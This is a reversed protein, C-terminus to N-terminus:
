YRATHIKLICFLTETAYLLPRMYRGKINTYKSLSKIDFMILYPIKKWEYKHTNPSPITRRYSKRLVVNKAINHCVCFTYCSLICIYIPLSKSHKPIKTYKKNTQKTKKTFCWRANAFHCSSGSSLSDFRYRPFFPRLISYHHFIDFAAIICVFVSLFIYFHFSDFNSLKMQVINKFIILQMNMPNSYLVAYKGKKDLRSCQKTRARPPPLM